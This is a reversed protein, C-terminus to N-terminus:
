VKIMLESCITCQLQEELLDTIKEQVALKTTATSIKQQEEKTAQLEKELVELKREHAQILIVFPGFFLRVCGSIIAKSCLM